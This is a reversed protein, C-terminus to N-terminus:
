PPDIVIIITNIRTADTVIAMEPQLINIYGNMVIMITKITTADSVITM